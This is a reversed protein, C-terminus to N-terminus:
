EEVVVKMKQPQAGPVRPVVVFNSTKQMPSLGRKCRLVAKPLAGGSPSSSKIKYHLMVDDGKKVTGLRWLLETGDGTKRMIPKSTEFEPIVSFNSPVIDRVVVGDADSGKNKVHLSIGLVSGRGLISKSIEIATALMYGYGALLIAFLGGFPIPWFIQSYAITREEGPALPAYWTLANGTISSPKDQPYVAIFPSDTKESAVEAFDDINGENRVTTYITSGWFNKQSYKTTTIKKVEPVSFKQTKFDSGFQSTLKVSADYSAPNWRSTLFKASIIKEEGQRLLEISSTKTYQGATFAIDINNLDTNGVNKVNAMLEVESGCEACSLSFGTLMIGTYRQQVPVVVNVSAPSINDGTASVAYVYRIGRADEPPSVSVRFTRSSYSGVFLASTGGEISIWDSPYVALSFWQGDSQNNWITVDFFTTDGALVESPQTSTLFVGNEALAPASFFIFALLALVFKKM